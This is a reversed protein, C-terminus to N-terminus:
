KSAAGFWSRISAWISSFILGFGSIPEASPVQPSSSRSRRKLQKDSAVDNEASVKSSQDIPMTAKLQGIRAELNKAFQSVIQNAVSQIMGAGRGYQAVSGTLNLDTDVTVKSGVASPEVRFHILANASGRGKADSGQSKVRAHHAVNDIEEFIALCVFTLSVPGLRVSVKGKFTKGDVVEVLEAGPMCPVIREIDLLAPWAEDPPLSVNFTNSFQM